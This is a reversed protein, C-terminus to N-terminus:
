SSSRRSIRCAAASASRRTSSCMPSPPTPIACCASASATSSSMAASSIASPSRSATPARPGAHGRSRRRPLEDAVGATPPSRRRGSTIAQRRRSSACWRSRAGAWSSNATRAIAPACRMSWISCARRFSQDGRFRRLRGDRCLRYQGLDLERRRRTTYSLFGKPKNVGDGNVFAAGEQEAFATQVEEAIWQEIDVVADDLLAQTAAPM